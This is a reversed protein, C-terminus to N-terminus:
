FASGSRIRFLIFGKSLSQLGFALAQHVQPISLEKFVSMSKHLARPLERGILSM